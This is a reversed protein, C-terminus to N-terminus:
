RLADRMRNEREDLGDDHLPHRRTISRVARSVFPFLNPSCFPFPLSATGRRRQVVYRKPSERLRVATTNLAQVKGRLTRVLIPIPNV